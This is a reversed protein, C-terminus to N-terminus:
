RAEWRVADFAVLRSESEFTVEALSVFESGDGRFSYTGLSVWQGGRASQDILRLEYEEEHIIWYRAHSTTSFREPVYAFVEYTGAELDPYWRAWNYDPRVAASGETWLLRGEFGEPEVEWGAASGGRVFGADSDDVIVATGVPPRAPEGDVLMWFLEAVAQGTNEYYQLELTTEGEVYVDATYFAEAQDQWQDILLEGDVWLRGGDDVTLAFRYTGPAFDENTRWRASFTDPEIVEAPSGTGWDHSIQPENRVLVPQGALEMNNYYEARWGPRVRGARSWSLEVVAQGTNEFYELRLDHLGRELYKDVTYTEAPHVTWQDLVLEGDIWLRVGDDGTVSFRYSGGSAYVTRTWRGSFRNAPLEAPGGEGWDHSLAREERTLAPAGTLATNSWYSAQWVPDASRTQAEIGQPLGLLALLLLPILVRRLRVWTM